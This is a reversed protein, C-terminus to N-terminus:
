DACEIDFYTKIVCKLDFDINASKGNNEFSYYLGNYLIVYVLSNYTSHYIQLSCIIKYDLLYPPKSSYESILRFNNVEM